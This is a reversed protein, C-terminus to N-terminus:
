FENDDYRFARWQSFYLQDLDLVGNNCVFVNRNEDLIPIFNLMM